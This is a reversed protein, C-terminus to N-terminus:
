FASETVKSRIRYSQPLSSLLLHIKMVLVFTFSDVHLSTWDVMLIVNTRRGKDRSTVATHTQMALVASCGYVSSVTSGCCTWRVFEGSDDIEPNTHRFEETHSFFVLFLDTMSWPCVSTFRAFYEVYWQSTDKEIDAAKFLRIKLSFGKRLASDQTQSPPIEIFGDGYLSLVLEVKPANKSASSNNTGDASSATRRDNAARPSRVAARARSTSVSLEPPPPEAHPTSHLQRVLKELATERNEVSPSYDGHSTSPQQQDNTSTLSPAPLKVSAVAEAVTRSMAPRQSATSAPKVADAAVATSGDEAAFNSTTPRIRPVLANVPAVNAPPPTPRLLPRRRSKAKAPVSAAGYISLLTEHRSM